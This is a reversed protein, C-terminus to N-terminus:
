TYKFINKNLKQTLNKFFNISLLLINQLFTIMVNVLKYRWMLNSLDFILFIQRLLLNILVHEMVDFLLNKFFRVLLM